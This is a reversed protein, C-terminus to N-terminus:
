FSVCVFPVCIRLQIGEIISYNEPFTFYETLIQIYFKDSCVCVCVIFIPKVPDNSFQPEM